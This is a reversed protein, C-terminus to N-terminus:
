GTAQPPHISVWLWQDRANQRGFADLALHLVEHLLVTKLDSVRLSDLFTQDIRCVGRGDVSATTTHGDNTILVPMKLALFGLFPCADVLDARAQFLKARHSLQSVPESSM